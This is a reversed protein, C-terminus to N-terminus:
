KKILYNNPVKLGNVMADTKSFGIYNEFLHIEKGVYRNLDYQEVPTLNEYFPSNIINESLIFKNVNKNENIPKIKKNKKFGMIEKYNM